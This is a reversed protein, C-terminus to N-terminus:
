AKFFVSTVKQSLREDRQDHCLDYSCNHVSSLHSYKPLTDFDLSPTDLQRGMLGAATAWSTIIFVHNIKM